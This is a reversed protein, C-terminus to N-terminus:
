DILITYLIENWTDPVGPLCWHSCDQGGKTYNSPHGDKRLQTLLTIDLLNVPLKMSNLVDKIVAEGPYHQGPFEAGKIPKTQGFCNPVSPEGWGNGQVHVASIGQFFVRTKAPDINSDVWNAWTTLATKYADMSDMDKILKDGIQFYDWTKHSGTHMWWHYTDFILVDIGKWHQTRTLTDLKLVRGVKESVVDVLFGNKLFMVSVGYEPFSLTVIPGRAVLTYNANPVAFHLICALSQWQNNSLSDGVFMIKKGSLKQLIKQGDFRDDMM